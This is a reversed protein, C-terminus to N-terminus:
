RSAVKRENRGVSELAHFTQQFIEDRGFESDSVCDLSYTETPKGKSGDSVNGQSYYKSQDAFVSNGSSIGSALSGSFVSITSPPVSMM